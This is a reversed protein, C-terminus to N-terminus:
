VWWCRMRARQAANERTLGIDRLMHESLGTPPRHIEAPTLWARATALAQRLAGALVGFAPTARRGGDAPPAWAVEFCTHRYIAKM